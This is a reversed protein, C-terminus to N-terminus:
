ESKKENMLKNDYCVAGQVRFVPVGFFNQRCCRVARKLPLGVKKQTLTM